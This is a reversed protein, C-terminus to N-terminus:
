DVLAIKLATYPTSFRVERESSRRGCEDETVVSETAGAGLARVVTRRL